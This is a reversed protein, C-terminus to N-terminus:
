NHPTPHPARQFLMAIFDLQVSFMLFITYQENNTHKRFTKLTKFGNGFIADQIMDKQTPLSLSFPSHKLAVV